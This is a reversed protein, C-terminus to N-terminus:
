PYTLQTLLFKLVLYDLQLLDTSREVINKIIFLLEDFDRPKNRHM